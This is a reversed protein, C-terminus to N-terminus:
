KKMKENKTKEMDNDGRSKEEQKRALALETAV